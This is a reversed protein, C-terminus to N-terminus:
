SKEIIKIFYKDNNFFSISIDLGMKLIPIHFIKKYFKTFAASSIWLFQRMLNNQIMQLSNLVKYSMAYCENIKRFFSITFANSFKNQVYVFRLWHLASMRGCTFSTKKPVPMRPHLFFTFFQTSVNWLESQPNHLLGLTNSEAHWM